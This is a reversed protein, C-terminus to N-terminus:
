SEPRLCGSQARLGQVVPRGELTDEAAAKWLQTLEHEIAAVDVPRAEGGLLARYASPTAM